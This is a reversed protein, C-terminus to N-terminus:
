PEFIQSKSGNQALFQGTNAIKDGFTLNDSRPWVLRVVNDVSYLQIPFSHQWWAIALNNYLIKNLKGKRRYSKYSGFENAADFYIFSTNFLRKRDQDPRNQITSLM